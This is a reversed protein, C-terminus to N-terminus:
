PIVEIHPHTGAPLDGRLVVRRPDIALAALWARLEEAELAREPDRSHRVLLRSEPQAIALAVAQRVPEFAAVREGTRPREWLAATDAARASALGAILIAGALTSRRM